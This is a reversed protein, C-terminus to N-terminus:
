LLSEYYDSTNEYVETFSIGKSLEGTGLFSATRASRPLAARRLQQHRTPLSIFSSSSLCNGATMFCSIYSNFFKSM